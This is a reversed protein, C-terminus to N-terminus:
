FLVNSTWGWKVKCLSHGFFEASCLDIQLSFIDTVRSRVFYVVRDSLHEQCILHFFVSYYGFRARPLMSHCSRGNRGQEIFFAHNVHAFLIYSPLLYVNKAHLQKSSFYTRNVDSVGEIYNAANRPRM